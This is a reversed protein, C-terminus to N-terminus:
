QLGKLSRTPKKFPTKDRLPYLNAKFARDFIQSPAKLLILLCSRFVSSFDYSVRFILKEIEFCKQIHENSAQYFYEITTM